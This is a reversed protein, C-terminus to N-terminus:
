FERTWQWSKDYDTFGVSEYLTHAPEDYSGVYALTAGLRKIRRMGEYMVAKGLGKRQHAPVTAVPEFSGTRTVDDFWVTCFSAVAGDPAIAVIDLDRRYLPCNQVNLFWTIDDRNEVATKIDGEHFALGSAYARELVELGLGLSRITYGHAVPAEPIPDDLSRRRQFEAWETRTYGRKEVLEVESAEHENIWVRLKCRGGEIKLALKEEATDLMEQELDPNQYAPHLQFFAEGSRDPNLVAAIKGESTEWLFISNELRMKELNENIHWRWYDFRYPQWCVERRGNLLFVERLFERIRWYDDEGQYNRLVPKM